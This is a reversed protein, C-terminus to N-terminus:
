YYISGAVIINGVSDVKVASLIMSNNNLITKEWHTVDGSLNKSKVKVESSNDGQSVIYLQIENDSNLKLDLNM